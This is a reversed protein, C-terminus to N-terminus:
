INEIILIELLTSRRRYIHQSSPINTVLNKMNKVEETVFIDAMVFASALISCDIYDKHYKYLHTAIEDIEPMYFPIIEFIGGYMIFLLGEAYTDLIKPNKKALKLAKWKAKLLSLSNIVLKYKNALELLKDKLHPISVGIGFIPLIDTTDLLVIKM